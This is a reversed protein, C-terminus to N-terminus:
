KPPLLTLAQPLLLLLSLLLLLPLVFAIFISSSFHKNCDAKGLFWLWLSSNLHLYNTKSAIKHLCSFSTHHKFHGVRPQSTLRLLWTSSDLVTIASILAPGQSNSTSVGSTNGIIYGECLWMYGTNVRSKWQTKLSIAPRLIETLCYLSNPSCVKTGATAM